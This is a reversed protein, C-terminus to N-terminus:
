RVELIPSYHKTLERRENVPREDYEVWAHAAFPYAVVGVRLVVSLGQRKLQCFLVLSRELCKAYPLFAAATAIRYAAAALEDERVEDVPRGHSFRRVLQITRDFGFLLLSARVATLLVGAVLVDTASARQWPRPQSLDWVDSTNSTM